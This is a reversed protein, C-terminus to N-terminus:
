GRLEEDEVPGPLRLANQDHCERPIKKHVGKKPTEHYENELNRVNFTAFTFVVRSNSQLFFTFLVKLSTGANSM